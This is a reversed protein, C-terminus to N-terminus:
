TDDYVISSQSDSESEKSQKIVKLLSDRAKIAASSRPRSPPKGEAIGFLDM